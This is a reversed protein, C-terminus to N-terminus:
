KVLLSTLTKIMNVTAESIFPQKNPPIAATHNDMAHLASTDFRPLRVSGEDHESHASLNSTQRPLAFVADQVEKTEIPPFRSSNMRQVQQRFSKEHESNVNSHYVANCYAYTRPTSADEDARKTLNRASSAQRVLRPSANRPSENNGFPSAGRPSSASPVDVAACLNRTSAQNLIVRPSSTSASEVAPSNSRSSSPSDAFKVRLMSRPTSACLEKTSAITSPLRMLPTLRNVMIPAPQLPEEMVTRLGETMDVSGRASAIVNKISGRRGNTSLADAPIDEDTFSSQKSLRKTPLLKASNTADMLVIDDNSTSRERAFRVTRNSKDTAAGGDTASKKQLSSKGACSSNKKDDYTILTKLLGWRKDKCNIAHSLAAPVLNAPKDCIVVLQGSPAKADYFHPVLSISWSYDHEQNDVLNRLKDINNLNRSHLSLRTLVYEMKLDLLLKNSVADRDIASDKDIALQLKTALLPKLQFELTKLCLYLRPAEERLMPDFAVIELVGATCLSDTTHEILTIEVSTRQARFVQKGEFVVKQTFRCSAAATEDRKPM